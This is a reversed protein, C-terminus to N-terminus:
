DKVQPIKLPAARFADWLKRVVCRWFVPERYWRTTTVKWAHSGNKYKCTHTDFRARVYDQLREPKFLRGSLTFSFLTVNKWVCAQRWSDLSIFVLPSRSVHLFLAFGRTDRPSSSHRPFKQERDSCSEAAGAAAEWGAPPPDRRAPLSAAGGAPVSQCTDSLDLNIELSRPEARSGSCTGCM